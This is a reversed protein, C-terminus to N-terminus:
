KAVGLAPSASLDGTANAEGFGKAHLKISVGTVKGSADRGYQLTGVAEIGRFVLEEVRHREDTDAKMDTLAQVYYLHTIALGTFGSVLMLVIDRPVSNIRLWTVLKQM